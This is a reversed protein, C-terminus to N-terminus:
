SHCSIVGTWNSTGASVDLEFNNGATVTLSSGLTLNTVTGASTGASITASSGSLISTGNFKVNFVLATSSDATTTTFVCAAITYSYPATQYLGSPTAPTGNPSLPLSVGHTAAGGATASVSMGNPSPTFTVNTSAVLPADGSYDTSTATNAYVWLVRYSNLAPVATTGNFTDSGGLVITALTSGQSTIGAFWSTSPQTAPLTYACASSCNMVVLKGADGSSASQSSTYIVTGGGSSTGCDSGTGTIQGTTSVHLCQTSGTVNTLKPALMSVNGAGGTGGNFTAYATGTKDLFTLSPPYVGGGTGGFYVGYNGDWHFYPVPGTASSDQTSFADNMRQAFMKGGSVTNGVIPGNDAWDYQYAATDVYSDWYQETSTNFFTKGQAPLWGNLAMTILACNNAFVCPGLGYNTSLQSTQIVTWGAAHALAWLSKLSSEITAASTNAYIDDQCGAVILYKPSGTISGFKTTFYTVDNACTDLRYTVAGHGNFFPEQMMMYVGFYDADYISGGSGSGTNVSYSFEFATTTLGASLVQFTGYGTDDTANLGTPASFWGIMGSVQVWDGAVLNHAASTNVTCTTGGCSWTSVAVSSSTVHSDDAYISSGALAYATTSPNYQVSSGGGTSAATYCPNPSGGTTYEVVQGNTPTYGICLPVNDIGVVQQSTSTGSLDGGATFGSSATTAGWCPNPSSATTYQLFQGNTPTFGTCLPVSHIGVVEQSTSSGSLDGGATFSSGGSVQPNQLAWTGNPEAHVHADQGTSTSIDGNSLTGGTPGTITQTIGNFDLTPASSTNPHAPTFWIDTGPLDGPLPIGPFNGDVVGPFGLINVVYASGSVGTDTGSNYPLKLGLIRSASNWYLPPMVTLRRLRRPPATGTYYVYM